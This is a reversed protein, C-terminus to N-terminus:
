SCQGEGMLLAESQIAVNTWCLLIQIEGMHFAELEIAVKNRCLLIEIGFLETLIIKLIVSFALPWKTWGFFLHIIILGQCM